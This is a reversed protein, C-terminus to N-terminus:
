YSILFTSPLFLAFFYVLKNGQANQPLFSVGNVELVDSIDINTQYILVLRLHVQRYKQRNSSVFTQGPSNM